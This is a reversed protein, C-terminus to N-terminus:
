CGGWTLRAVHDTKRKTPKIFGLFQLESVAQVFRAQLQQDVTKKASDEDEDDIVSIFAQMWDYLNVLRGCELHLKYAVSIDPLTTLISSPDQLQCCDCQLYHHPNSLATTLAPRPVGVLLRKVSSSSELFMIEHLPQSSPPQLHQEFTKVLLEVVDCRLSDYMNTKRSKKKALEQLKEKLVFRDSAQLSVTPEEDRNPEEIVQDLQDLSSLRGVLLSLENHMDSMEEDNSLKDQLIELINRLIPLMEERSMLKILKAAKQFEETDVLPQSLCTALVERVQRGLPCLPLTSTLVQVVKVLCCFRIYWSELQSLLTVITEKSVKEDLLLAAQEKPPCKEVYTRFSPLKRIIDLQAPTMAKILSARKSASCCLFSSSNGLFHEMMCVKLGKVFKEVSLDSYLFIDLLLKFPRGGIHFPVKDSMLVQEIVHNLYHTSPQAQFVEMAVCASADQALSRHVAATTTAVGFVLVIPLNQIHNSCILILDNLVNSPFSEVDELIVVLPLTHYKNFCPKESLKMRKRPSKGSHSSGARESMPYAINKKPSGLAKCPSALAKKPTRATMQGCSGSKTPSSKEASSSSLEKYWATLVPMTCQARKLEPGTTAVEEYMEPDVVEGQDMLQTIMKYVAGRLTTCDRSRLRAIHPTAGETLLRVLSEFISNHDPMNVGTVLCATPIDNTEGYDKRRMNEGASKVFAVLEEFVKAHIKDQLNNLTQTISKWCHVYNKHTVKKIDAEEDQGWFDLASLTTADNQTKGKSRKFAFVGKSVSVTAAM